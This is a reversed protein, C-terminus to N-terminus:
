EIGLLKYQEKIYEDSIKQRKDYEKNVEERRNEGCDSCWTLRQLFGNRTHFIAYNYGSRKPNIHKKCVFCKM